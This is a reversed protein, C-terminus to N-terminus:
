VFVIPAFVFFFIRETFKSTPHRVERIETKKM